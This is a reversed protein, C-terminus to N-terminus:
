EAIEVTDLNQEKKLVLKNEKEDYYYINMRNDEDSETNGSYLGFYGNGLPVLNKNFRTSNATDNYIHDVTVEGGKGGIFLLFIAIFILTKRIRRLENSTESHM